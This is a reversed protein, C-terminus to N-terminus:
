LSVVHSLTPIYGTTTPQPRIRDAPCTQAFGVIRLRNSLSIHYAILATKKGRGLAVHLTDCFVIECLHSKRRNNCITLGNPLRQQLQLLAM